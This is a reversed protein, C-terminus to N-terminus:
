TAKGESYVKMYAPQLGRSYNYLGYPLMERLKMGIAFSLTVPCQQFVEISSHRGKAWIRVTRESLQVIDRWVHPKDNPLQLKDGSRAGEVYLIWPQMGSSLLFLAIEQLSDDADSGTVKLVLAVPPLLESTRVPICGSEPGALWAMGYASPLVPVALFRQRGAVFERRLGLEAGFEAMTHGDTLWDLPAPVARGGLDSLVRPLAEWYRGRADVVQRTHGVDGAVLIRVIKKGLREAEALEAAVNESTHSEPSVLVVFADSGGIGALIEARWDADTPIDFVDQWPELGARKLDHRLRVAVPSNTRSYSLFVRM